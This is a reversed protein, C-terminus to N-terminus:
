LIIAAGLGGTIHLDLDGVEIGFLNFSDKCISFTFCVM